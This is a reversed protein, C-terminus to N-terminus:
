AGAGTVRLIRSSSRHGLMRDLMMLLSGLMVFERRVMVAFSRPMVFFFIVVHGRMVCVHGGGMMVVRRMVSGFGGLGVGFMVAFRGFGRASLWTRAREADLSAVM